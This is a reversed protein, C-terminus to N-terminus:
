AVPVAAVAATRMLQNIIALQLGAVERREKSRLCALCGDLTVHSPILVDMLMANGVSDNNLLQIMILNSHAM